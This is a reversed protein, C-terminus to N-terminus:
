TKAGGKMNNSPFSDPLNGDKRLFDCLKKRARFLRSKVTGEELRLVQGIEAYSLGSLERLMLIRRYDEPLSALGRQVARRLEARELSQVPDFRDDAVDLEQPEEDEDAATLSVTPRRGRSRLFDICINTTLRYLWVSFKSDGRFSGLSRYARLFAEQTMDAADEENGVTRLALNYVQKQYATVLAEFADTDGACVRRIVAYEEERTM